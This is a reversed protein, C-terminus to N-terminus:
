DMLTHNSLWQNQSSNIVASIDEKHIVDGRGHKRWIKRWAGQRHTNDWQGWEGYINFLSTPLHFWEDPPSLPVELGKQDLRVWTIERINQWWDMRIWGRRNPRGSTRVKWKASYKIGFLETQTLHFTTRFWNEATRGTKRVTANNTM